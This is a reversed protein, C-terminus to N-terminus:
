QVNPFSWQALIPSHLDDREMTIPTGRKRDKHPLPQPLLDRERERESERERERETPSPAPEREMREMEMRLPTGREVVM